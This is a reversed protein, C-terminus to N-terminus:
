YFCAFISVGFGFGVFIRTFDLWILGFGLWALDLWLLGLWALDLWSLDSALWALGLWGYFGLSLSAGALRGAALTSSLAAGRLVYASGPLASAM